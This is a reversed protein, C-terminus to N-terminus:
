LFKFYFNIKGVPEFPSDPNLVQLADKGLVILMLGMVQKLIVQVWPM